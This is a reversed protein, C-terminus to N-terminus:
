GEDHDNGKRPMGRANMSPHQNRDIRDIKTRISKLRRRERRSLPREERAEDTAVERAGPKPTEYHGKM